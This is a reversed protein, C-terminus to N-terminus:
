NTYLYILIGLTSHVFRIDFTNVTDIFTHLVNSIIEYVWFPGSLLIDNTTQRTTTADRKLHLKDAKFLILKM